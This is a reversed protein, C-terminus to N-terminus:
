WRRKPDLRTSDAWEAQPYASASATSASNVGTSPKEVSLLAEESYLSLDESDLLPDKSYLLSAESGLLSDESYLSFDESDLLSGESYLLLDGSGQLVTGSATSPSPNVPSFPADDLM